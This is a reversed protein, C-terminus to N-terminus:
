LKFQSCNSFNQSQFYPVVFLIIASIMTSFWHVKIVKIRFADELRKAQHCCSILTNYTLMGPKVGAQKMAEYISLAREGQQQRRCVTILALYTGENASDIGAAKMEEIVGLAETVSSSRSISRNIRWITQQLKL